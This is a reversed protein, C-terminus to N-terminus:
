GNLSLYKEFVHGSFPVGSVFMIDDTIIGMKHLKYFDRPIGVMQDKMRLLKTDRTTEERIIPINTGFIINSNSIDSVEVPCNRLGNEGLSM